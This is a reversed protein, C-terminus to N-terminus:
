RRKGAPPRGRPPSITGLVVRKRAGTVSPLNAPNGTVSENALVAFCVAEKAGAPIGFEDIVRIRVTGFYRRLEELLFRNH